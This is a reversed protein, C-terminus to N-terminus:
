RSSTDSFRYSREIEESHSNYIITVYMDSEYLVEGTFADIVFANCKEKITWSKAYEQALELNEFGATKQGKVYVDYNYITMEM